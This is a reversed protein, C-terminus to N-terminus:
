GHTGGFRAQWAARLAATARHVRVRATGESCGVALGIDRHDMGEVSRLLLVERQAPSIAALAVALQASREETTLRELPLPGPDALPEVDPTFELRRDRRYRDIALNRAIRLLWPALDDHPPAQDRRELVRLFTEQVLDQAADNDGLWRALFAYLRAHHRAFLTDLAALHGQRARVMLQQDTPGAPPPM